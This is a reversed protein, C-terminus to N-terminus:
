RMVKFNLDQIDDTNNVTNLTKYVETVKWSIEFCYYTTKESTQLENAFLTDSPCFYHDRM